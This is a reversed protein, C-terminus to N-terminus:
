GKVGYDWDIFFASAARGVLSWILCYLRRSRLGYLLRAAIARRTLYRGTRHRLVRRRYDAFSFDDNAFAEKLAGAAVQGYGLAFSIGEGVLPDTGAADGVLLVRPASFSAQRHFWRLPHGELHYDGAPYGHQVLGQDLAAKLAARPRGPHVRSDYVGWTRMPRGNSPTPFDWVYGQLDRGMGSFDFLAKHQDIEPM